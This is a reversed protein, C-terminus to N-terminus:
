DAVWRFLKLLARSITPTARRAARLRLRNSAPLRTRIRFYDRRNLAGTPPKPIGPDDPLAGRGRKPAPKPANRLVVAIAVVVGADALIALTVAWATRMAYLSNAADAASAAIALGVAWTRM